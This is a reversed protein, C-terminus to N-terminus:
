ECCDEILIHIIVGCDVVSLYIYSLGHFLLDSNFVQMFYIVDDQYTTSLVHLMKMRVFLLVYVTSKVKVCKVVAKQVVMGVFIM